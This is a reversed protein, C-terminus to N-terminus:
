RVRKLWGGYNYSCLYKEEITKDNEFELQKPLWEDLAEGPGPGFSGLIPRGNIATDDVVMYCGVTVLQSYLDLEKLVHNKKHNSDLSVMIKADRHKAVQIIAIEQLIRKFIDKNVSSGTIYVIEKRRSNEDFKKTERDITIVKGGEGILNLIDQFYLASSGFCTGCEILIDPKTEWIIETYRAVDEPPKVIRVGRWYTFNMKRRQYVRQYEDRMKEHVKRM